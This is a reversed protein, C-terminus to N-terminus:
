IFAFSCTIDSREILDHATEDKHMGQVHRKFSDLRPWIRGRNRCHESACQYSQEEVSHFRERHRKLDDKTAFGEGNAARYCDQVDCQFLNEYRQVDRRYSIRKLRRIPALTRVGSRYSITTFKCWLSTHKSFVWGRDNFQQDSENERERWNREQLEFDEMDRKQSAPELFEAENQIFGQHGQGITREVQDGEETRKQSLLQHLVPMPVKNASLPEVRDEGTRRQGLLGRRRLIPKLLPGPFLPEDDDMEEFDSDSISESDSDSAYTGADRAVEPNNPGLSMLLVYDGPSPKTKNKRNLKKQRQYSSSTRRIIPPLGLRNTVEPPPSPSPTTKPRFATLGPSQPFADHPDNYSLHRNSM